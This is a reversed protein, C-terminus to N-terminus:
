KSPQGGRGGVGGREVVHENRESKLPALDRKAKLWHRMGEGGGVVREGPQSRM